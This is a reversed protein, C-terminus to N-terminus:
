LMEDFYISRRRERTDRFQVDVNICFVSLFTATSAIWNTKWLYKFSSLHTRATRFSHCLYVLRMCSDWARNWQPWECYPVGTTLSWLTKMDECWVSLLWWRRVSSLFRLFPSLIWINIRELPIYFNIKWLFTNM